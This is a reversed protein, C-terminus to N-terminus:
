VVGHIGLSTQLKLAIFGFFIVGLLSHTYSRHSSFSAIIINVGLLIIWQEDLSIGGAIVAIGTITLMHKQKILAAVVMILVWIGLGLWRETATKEIFSYLIMLIGILQASLIIMKHSLTIKGRLKGNTDLDPMLGSIGGLGVILPTASPSTKNSNTPNNSYFVGFVGKILSLRGVLHNFDIVFVPLKHPFVTKWRVWAHKPFARSEITPLTECM